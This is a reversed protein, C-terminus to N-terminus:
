RTPAVAPRSGVDVRMATFAEAWFRNEEEESKGAFDSLATSGLAGLFRLVASEQVATYSQRAIVTQGGPVDRVALRLTAGGQAFPRRLPAKLFTAAALPLHWEPERNFRMLWGRENATRITTFEGVVDSAGVTFPGLKAFAEMRLQVADPMPRPAGTFTVLRGDKVRARVTLRNKAAATTFYPTGAADTLAIRYRSPAVYKQLYAAFAPFTRRLRDPHLTVALDVTTAGAADPTTRITDVTFLRGLAASGRPLALRYDARLASGSRGEVASFLSGLVNAADVATMRGVAFDVTTTWAYQDDGALRELRIAHTADGPRALAARATAAGMTYRGNAFGANLLLTRDTPGRTSWLARDGYLKSPTLAHRGLKPRAAAFREDRQVNTFRRAAGDFFDAANATAAAPSGGFAAITGGCGSLQVIAALAVAPPLATRRARRLTPVHVLLPNIRHKSRVIRGTRTGYTPERCRSGWEPDRM